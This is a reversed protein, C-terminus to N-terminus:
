FPNQTDKTHHDFSTAQVDRFEKRLEGFSIPYPCKEVGVDMVKGKYIEKGVESNYLSGHSHGHIMWSGKAQGNFSLIAYHSMVIPQGNVFAELYNPVFVVRKNENIVYINSELSEFLQKFGATHNGPMLYMTDFNLRNLLKVLNEYAGKSFVIDGLNFVTDTQKVKENWRKIIGENYEELSNFGRKKWLPTPWRECGHNIHLDSWFLISDDKGNIKLPKYFLDKMTFLIAGSSPAAGM